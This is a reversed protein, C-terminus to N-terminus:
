IKALKNVFGTTPRTAKHRWVLAGAVFKASSKAGTTTKTADPIVRKIPNTARYSIPPGKHPWWILPALGIFLIV